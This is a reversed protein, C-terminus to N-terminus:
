RTLAYVAFSALWHEGGYNGKDLNDVATDILQHAHNIMLDRAHHQYSLHQSINLLNWARTFMLGDLHTILYDMRDSVVPTQCLHQIDQMSLFNDFWRQYAEKDLIRTMCEAIYLSNSFFDSGDPELQAKYN